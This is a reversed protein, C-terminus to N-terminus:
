KGPQAALQSYRHHLQQVQLQLQDLNGNNSIIEDAAALRQERSAQAAFARDIEADNMQDRQKLRQRRITDDCDIVLIRNVLNQQGTELLLPIVFIAYPNTLLAAQRLMEARIRPHLIAELQQRKASDAFILQRLAPRNIQGADTVIEAGFAQAIETLAPQGPEVVQRAILDTDIIPVDLEAFCHAAASKGSGIGGTLGIILM